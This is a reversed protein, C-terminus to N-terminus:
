PINNLYQSLYKPLYFLLCKDVDFFFRSKTKADNPFKFLRKAKLWLLIEAKQFFSKVKNYYFTVIYINWM